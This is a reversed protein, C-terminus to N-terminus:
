CDSLDSAEIWRWAQMRARFWSRQRKAYQRTQTAIAEKADSLALDGKVHAVLEAAGIAKASPMDARWEDANERAEDLVGQELMLDLRQEIRPSLWTKPASLAIAQTTKLPLIAPGTDDQWRALSRGTNELVEWARQVRRPNAIDIRSRTEEDLEAVLTELGHSERRANARARVDPPTEPIDALGETLASFNLGTGGIIVPPKGHLLPKLDRLWDGVSYTQTGPVYGYLGHPVAAEDEPGPRATLIRWDSYVQLADANIVTSGFHSAIEMALRSKGSATPGAILVPHEASLSAIIAKISNM